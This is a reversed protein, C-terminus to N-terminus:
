NKGQGSSADERLAGQKFLDFASQYSAITKELLGAAWPKLDAPLESQKFAQDESAQKSGTEQGFLVIEPEAKPALIASGKNDMLGLLQYTSVFARGEEPQMALVNKGFFRGGTDWGLIDFLTPALDIQSCLTSLSASQLLKPAYMIAVVGYSRAPLTTKGAISAPHDGIFIFITNDFWKKQAAKQLFEGIAYDSYLVAKRRSNDPKGVAGDPFTFPRHNTTTLLVQHFPKGAAYSFDAQKLSENFLDQDCFGWATAFTRHAADFEPRDVERYGNAKFFPGMNDFQGYGGYVFALDYGREKFLTGMSFLNGNDPRRVISNGPTPPLGLTIAEIGRVTRTGTSKMEKFWVGEKALKSLNPAYEGLWTSGLSEMIVLVVNPKLEQGPKKPALLVERPKGASKKLGEAVLLAEKSDMTPYFARYDLENSWFAAGFEYIGNRGLENLYRNDEMSVPKFLLFDLSALAFLALLCLVRWGFYELRGKPAIVYRRAPAFDAARNETQFKGQVKGRQLVKWLGFTCFVSVALMGLTIPLMPYSELVNKILENTYILYDVAIFNFRTSFEEWFLYEAVATFILIFVYVFLGGCLLVRGAKRKLFRPSPLLALCAFFLALFPFTALDNIFGALFALTLESGAGSFDAKFAFLLVFRVLLNLLLFFGLMLLLYHVGSTTYKQIARQPM